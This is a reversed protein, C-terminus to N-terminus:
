GLPWLGLPNAKFPDTQPGLANALPQCAIFCTNFVTTLQAKLRGYIGPEALEDGEGLLAMAWRADFIKEATLKDVPELECRDEAEELDIRVFETTFELATQRTLKPCL